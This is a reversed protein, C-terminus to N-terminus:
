CLFKRGKQRFQFSLKKSSRFILFSDNTRSFFNYRNIGYSAFNLLENIITKTNKFKSFDFTKKMKNKGIKKQIRTTTKM